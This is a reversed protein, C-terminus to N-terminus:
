LRQCYFYMFYLFYTLLDIEKGWVPHQPPLVGVFTLRRIRQIADREDQSRFESNSVKSVVYHYSETFFRSMAGVKNKDRTNSIMQTDGEEEDEEEEEVDGGENKSDAKKKKAAAIKNKEKEEKEKEERYQSTM